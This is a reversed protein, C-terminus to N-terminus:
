TRTRYLVIMNTMSNFLTVLAGAIVGELIANGKSTHGIWSGTAFSAAVAVLALLYLSEKGTLLISAGSSRVPREFSFVGHVDSFSQGSYRLFLLSFFELSFKVAFSVAVDTVIKGATIGAEVDAPRIKMREVVTPTLNASRRTNKRDSEYVIAYLIPILLIGSIYTDFALSPGSTVVGIAGSNITFSLFLNGM